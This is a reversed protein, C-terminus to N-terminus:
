FSYSQCPNSLDVSLLDVDELPGNRGAYKNGKSGSLILYDSKKNQFIGSVTVKIQDFKRYKKPLESKLILIPPTERNLVCAVGDQSQIEHLVFYGNSFRNDIDMYILYGSTSIRKSELDNRQNEIQKLTLNQYDAGIIEPHKKSSACGALVSGLFISLILTTKNM